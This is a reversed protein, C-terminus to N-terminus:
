LLRHFTRRLIKEAYRSCKWTGRRIHLLQLTHAFLNNWEYNPKKMTGREGLMRWQVVSANEVAACLSLGCLSCSDKSATVLRCWSFSCCSNSNRCSSIEM